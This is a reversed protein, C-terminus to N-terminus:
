RMTKLHLPKATAVAPQRVDHRLHDAVPSADDEGDNDVEVPVANM